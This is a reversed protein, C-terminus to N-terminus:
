KEPPDFSGLAFGDVAALRGRWLMGNAPLPQRGQSYLKANRLHIYGAPGPTWDDAADDPREYLTTYRRWADALQSQFDGDEESTTKMADALEEFYKKGSILMGAIVAGGVILTVGIEVGGQIITEITQQLFWDKDDAILVEQPSTYVSSEQQEDTPM